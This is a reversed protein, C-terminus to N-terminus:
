PQIGVVTCIATASDGSPAYPPQNYPVPTVDEAVLQFTNTGIVSGLAPIQQAWTSNYSGGAAVNTYGARWNSYFTGSALTLDLHGAIRRTQLPYLNDLSVSM